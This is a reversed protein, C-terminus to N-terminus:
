GAFLWQFFTPINQICSVEVFRKFENQISRELFTVGEM